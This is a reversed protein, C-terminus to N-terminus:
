PVHYGLGGLISVAVLGAAGSGVLAIPFRGGPALRGEIRTKSDDDGLTKWAMAAPAAFYLLPALIGGGAHLAPLFLDSACAALLTPPSLALALLMARDRREIDNPTDKLNLALKQTSLEPPPNPLIGRASLEEVQGLATGLFSSVLSTVSFLHKAQQAFDNEGVTQQPDAALGVAIWAIYMFAPIGSGLLIAKRIAERDGELQKSIVPIINQFALSLAMVPLANTLGGNYPTTLGEMHLRPLQSSMLALFAFLSMMTMISNARTLSESPGLFMATGVVSTFLCPALPEPFVNSLLHGGESIYAVLLAFNYVIFGIGILRGINEGLLAKSMSEISTGLGKAKAALWLEAVFLAALSSGLWGAGILESSVVFGPDRTVTPLALMGAGVMNGAVLMAASFVKGNSRRPSVAKELKRSRSEESVRPVPAAKAAALRSKWRQAASPRVTKSLSRPNTTAESTIALTSLTTFIYLFKVFCKKKM